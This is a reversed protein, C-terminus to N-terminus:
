ANKKEGDFTAPLPNYLPVNAGLQIIHPPLGFDRQDQMLYVTISEETPHYQKMATTSFLIKDNLGLAGCITDLTFKIRNDTDYQKFLSKADKPYGVSVINPTQVIIVSSFRDSEHLENVKHLTHGLVKLVAQKIGLRWDKAQDSLKKTLIIKGGRHIPVEEHLQNVSPPMTLVQIGFMLPDSWVQARVQMEGYEKHGRTAKSRKDAPNQHTTRRSPM